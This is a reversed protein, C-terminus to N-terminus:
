SNVFLMLKYGNHWGKEVLKPLDTQAYLDVAPGLKFLKPILFNATASGVSNAPTYADTHYPQEVNFIVACEASPGPAPMTLYTDYIRKMTRIDALLDPDAFWASAQAGSLAFPFELWWWGTDKTIGYAFHKRFSHLTEPQSFTKDPLPSLYTRTDYESFWM